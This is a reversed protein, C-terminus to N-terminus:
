YKGALATAHYSSRVLPGSEVSSFGLEHAKEAFLVFDDPTYYHHVPFAEKTPQLYQGITVAMCGADYLDNLTGFIEKMDEGFGVMLGSKVVLGTSAARKLLNLSIDYDGGPRLHKFLSRAVEINHNFVDPKAGFVKEAGSSSTGSFDPVLVEVSLDNCGSRVADITKVYQSGGGDPLDDRTVSTIVIHKLSLNKAIEAVRDPEDQDPNAPKGHSIACYRCNRTCINGLILFTATGNEFCEGRNPCRAETCVTSLGYRKIASQVHAAQIGKPVRSKLWGPKRIEDPGM